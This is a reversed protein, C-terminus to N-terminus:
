ARTVLVRRGPLTNFSTIGPKVIIPAIKSLAVKALSNAAVTTAM